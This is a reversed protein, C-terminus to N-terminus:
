RRGKSPIVVIVTSCSSCGPAKSWVRVASRKRTEGDRLTFAETRLGLREQAQMWDLSSRFLVVVYDYHEFAQLEMEPLGVDADSEDPLETEAPELLRFLNALPPTDAGASALLLSLAADDSEALGAIPDLTLLLLDAEEDSMDLILTPWDAQHSRREHGDILTLQGSNRESFYATLAGAIGIKALVEALAKRQAYPHVRWNRDNDQLESSPVRRFELTRDRIDPPATKTGVAAKGPDNKKSM